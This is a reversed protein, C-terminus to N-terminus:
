NLETIRAKGDFSVVTDLIYSTTGEPIGIITDFHFGERDVRSFHIDGLISQGLFDAPVHNSYMQKSIDSSYLRKAGHYVSLHIINDYYVNDVAVGDDNYNRKLVKFKTPNVAIYCHYRENSFTVVTDRKVIENVVAVVTTRQEFAINDDPSNSKGLKLEEGNQNKFVLLEESLKVIAYRSPPEGIVLSDGVVMFKAPQITSDPYFITDGKVMFNLESTETDVWVGQLMQKAKTDEVAEATTKKKQQCGFALAVTLALLVLRLVKM